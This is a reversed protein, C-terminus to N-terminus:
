GTNVTNACHTDVVHKLRFSQHTSGHTWLVIAVIIVTARHLEVGLIAERELAEERVHVLLAVLRREDKGLEGAWAISCHDLHPALGPGLVDVVVFVVFSAAYM